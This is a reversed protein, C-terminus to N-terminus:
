ERIELDGLYAIMPLLIPSLHSTISEIQSYIDFDEDIPEKKENHAKLLAIGILVLAIRYREKLLEVDDKSKSKYEILAYINDMNVFYDYGEEGAYVVKLASYKDFGHKEWDPEYVPFVEPLSINSPIQRNKGSSTSPPQRIGNSGRKSKQSEEIVLLTFKDEFPEIRLPDNVKSNFVLKSGVKVKNPLTLLLNGIGNWLNLIINEVPEGDLFLEFTGPNESRKFYNNTADTEFRIRSRQNIPSNKTDKLTCKFYTPYKKGQYIQEQTGVSRLNFPTPLKFGINFLLAISPSKKLIDELVEKLPKNDELKDHIEERRRREKLARLGPHTRILEQLTDEIEKKLNGKRLRDRSNLFLDERNRASISSCDVIILISNALYGMGLATRNFFSRAPIYGHTQGNITFVIGEDRRYNKQQDKKFAYIQCHM